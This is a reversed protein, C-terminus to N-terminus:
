IFAEIKSLRLTSNSNQNSSPKSQGPLAATSSLNRQPQTQSFM